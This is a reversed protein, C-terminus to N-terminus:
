KESSFECRQFKAYAEKKSESELQALGAAATPSFRSVVSWLRFAAAEDRESPMKPLRYLFGGVNYVIFTAIM